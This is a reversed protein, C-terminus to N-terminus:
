LNSDQRARKVQGGCVAHVHPFRRIGDAAPM